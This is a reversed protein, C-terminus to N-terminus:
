EKKSEVIELLKELCALEAEEYDYQNNMGIFLDKEDEENIFWIYYDYVKKTKLRTPMIYSDLDYKDRFWRFSSRYTIANCSIKHSKNYESWFRVTNGRIDTPNLIHFGLSNPEDFGLVKMRLALEYEVFEKQM